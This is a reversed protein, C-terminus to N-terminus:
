DTNGPPHSDHRHPHTPPAHPIPHDAAGASSSHSEHRPAKLKDHMVYSATALDLEANRDLADCRAIALTLRAARLAREADLFELQSMAAADRKREAIRFGEEAAALRASGTGVARLATALDESAARRALELRRQLDERRM